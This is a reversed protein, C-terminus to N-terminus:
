GYLVIRQVNYEDMLEDKNDYDDDADSMEYPEREICLLNDCGDDFVIIDDASLEDAKNFCQSKAWVPRVVVVLDEPVLCNDEARCILIREGIPIEFTEWEDIDAVDKDETDTEWKTRSLTLLGRVEDEPNLITRDFAGM